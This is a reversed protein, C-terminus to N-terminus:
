FCAEEILGCAHEVQKLNNLGSSEVKYMKLVSDFPCQHVSKFITQRSIFSSSIKLYKIKFINICTKYEAEESTLKDLYPFASTENNYKELFLM